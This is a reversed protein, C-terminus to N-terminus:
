RAEKAQDVSAPNDKLIISGGSPIVDKGFDLLRARVLTVCSQYAAVGDPRVLLVLQKKERDKALEDLLQHFASGGPGKLIDLLVETSEPHILVGEKRCEVCVPQRGSGAGAIQVHIDDTKVIVIKPPPPPQKEKQEIRLIEDATKAISVTTQACIIVVMLGMACKQISLIPVLSIGVGEKQRRRSM